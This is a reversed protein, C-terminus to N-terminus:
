INKPKKVLVTNLHLDKPKVTEAELPDPPAQSLSLDDFWVKGNPDGYLSISVRIAPHEKLLDASLSFGTSYERWEGPAGRMAFNHMFFGNGTRDPKRADLFRAFGRLACERSTRYWFGLRYSQVPALEGTNVGVCARGTNTFGEIRVSSPASHFAETDVAFEYRGETSFATWGAPVKEGAKGNAAPNPLPFTEAAEAGRVSSSVLLAVIVLLTRSYEPKNKTVKSGM